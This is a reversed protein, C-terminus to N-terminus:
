TKIAIMSKNQRTYMASKRRIRATTAMNISERGRTIRIMSNNETKKNSKNDEQYRKGGRARSGLEASPRAGVGEMRWYGHCREM